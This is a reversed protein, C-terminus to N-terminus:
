RHWNGFHHLHDLYRVSFHDPNQGLHMHIHVHLRLEVWSSRLGVDRGRAGRGFPTRKCLGRVDADREIDTDLAVLYPNFNDTPLSRTNSTNTPANVSADPDDVGNRWRAGISVQM